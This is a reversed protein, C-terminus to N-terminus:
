REPEIPLRDTVGASAFLNRVQESGATLTFRWGSTRSTEAAQLVVRLGSSDMFALSDLDLLVPEGAASLAELREAVTDASALDLDGRLRLVVVGNRRGEEMRFEDIADDNMPRSQPITGARPPRFAAAPLLVTFRAGGGPADAAHVRGHHAAVIALGLGAAPKGRERGGEARRL